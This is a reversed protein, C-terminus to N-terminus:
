DFIIKEASRRTEKPHGAFLLNKLTKISFFRLDLSKDQTMFEKIKPMLDKFTLIVGPFDISFNCIIAMGLRQIEPNADNILDKFITELDQNEEIIQVKM